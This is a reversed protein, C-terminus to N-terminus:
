ADGREALFKALVDSPTEQTTCPVLAVRQRKCGQEL